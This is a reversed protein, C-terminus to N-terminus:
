RDALIKTLTKSFLSGPDFPGDAYKFILPNLNILVTRGKLIDYRNAEFAVQREKIRDFLRKIDGTGALHLRALENASLSHRMGYLMLRKKLLLTTWAHPKDVMNGFMWNDFNKSDLAKMSLAVVPRDEAEDIADEDGPVFEVSLVRHSAYQALEETPGVLKEVIVRVRHDETEQSQPCVVILLWLLTYLM